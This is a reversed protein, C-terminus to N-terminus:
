CISRTEFRYASESFGKPCSLPKSSTRNFTRQVLWDSASSPDSWEGVPAVYAGVASTNTLWIRFRVFRILAM